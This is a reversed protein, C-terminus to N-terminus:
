RDLHNTDNAWLRGENERYLWGASGSEEALPPSKDAKVIATEGAHNGTPLPPVARLYPGFPGNATVNGNVDTKKTLQDAIAWRGPFAGHEVHYHIIAQRLTGLNADLAALRTRESAGGLRVAAVGSIVAIIAIVIMTELLTFSRRRM